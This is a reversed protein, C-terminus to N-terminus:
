FNYTLTLYLNRGKFSSYRVYDLDKNYKTGKPDNNANESFYTDVGNIIWKSNIGPATASINQYVLRKQQLLDSLSLRADMRKKFFRANLQLDIVDRPNEYQDMFPYGGAVVIRRGYRNYNINAGFREGAWGLGGNIVYPSLGQLPRNRENVSASTGGQGATALLKDVDYKVKSRMISLNGNVYLQSLWKSDPRVFALSKRFDIEFGKNASNELNFYYNIQGGSGDDLTVLEVPDTFKKYFLSFSLVEGPSPFYEFRLDANNIHADRLGTAGTIVTRENPDYYRYSSRERFDARALTKSWAARINIKSTLNYTLNASPLWDVDKYHVISDVPNGTAKNYTVGTLRMRNHELRVGGVLRLKELLRLDTMIYGAQIQQRGNYDDTATIGNINSIRYYLLGSQMFEPSGLQYDPLGYVANNFTQADNGNMFLRLAMTETSANRLSYAYGTKIKHENGLLRLPITLNAAANKKRETLKANFITLGESLFGLGDNLVYYTDAGTLDYSNSVRNDPQDRRLSILDASWDLKLRSKGFVHEAELRNHWLASEILVSNMVNVGGPRNTWAQGYYDYTDSNLRRNYLAKYVLKHNGSQYGVSAIGSLASNYQYARSLSDSYYNFGPLYRHEDAINEEHRTTGALTIALTGANRLPIRKGMALQMDQVPQYHFNRLGWNNPVSSSMESLKERNTEVSYQRYLQNNFNGDVWWTRQKGAFGFAEAGSRILGRFEQGTSNTNFGSGLAFSFYDKDPIDRTSVQVLGGAFEASQDSTATKSVVINDILASPIIEFSFNRRNPETSPLTAGNLTVNNYRESLGRVTVFKEDQVTLGSVRKLVQAANNDPTVRIQDASIGDTVAANNKQRAYLGEVSAKKYSSTVIVEGLAKADPKMAIDLPTNKDESVAVGTIRQTQFSLYRIELTYTGPQLSLIYRGDAGSQTGTGTEIVKITAQPLTEGKDDLVKGSIKGSRPQIPRVDIVVFGDVTKYLLNTNAIIRDLAEKVTIKNSILTVKKNIGEIAKDRIFFQTESEKEVALLCQTVSVNELKLIINRTLDQSKANSAHLIGLFTVQVTLMVLSIKM